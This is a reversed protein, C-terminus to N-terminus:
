QGWIVGSQSKVGNSLYLTEPQDVYTLRITMSFLM